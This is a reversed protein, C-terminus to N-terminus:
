PVMVYKNVENIIEEESKGKVDFDIFDISMSPLFMIKRFPAMDVAHNFGAAIAKGNNDFGIMRPVLM